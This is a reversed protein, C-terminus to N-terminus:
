SVIEYYFLSVYGGAGDAGIYATITPGGYTTTNCGGGGGGAGYSGAPIAPADNDAAGGDGGPGFISAAGGGSGGAGGAGVSGSGGSLGGSPGGYYDTGSGGAAGGSGPWMHAADKKEATRGSGASGGVVGGANSGNLGGLSALRSGNIGGGMGGNAASPEGGGWGGLLKIPGIITPNGGEGSGATGLATESMSTVPRAYQTGVVGHRGGAGVTIALTGGSTVALHTGVCSEGAAGGGGGNSVAFYKASSGGGGGGGIAKVLVWSVGVPVDWTYSGPTTWEVVTFGLAM